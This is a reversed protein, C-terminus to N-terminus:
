LMVIKNKAILISIDVSFNEYGVTKLTLNINSQHQKLSRLLFFSDGVLM